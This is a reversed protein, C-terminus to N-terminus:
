QKLTGGTGKVIRCVQAAIERENTVSGTLTEVDVRVSYRWLKPSLYDIELYGPTDAPVIHEQETIERLQVGECASESAFATKFAKRIQDSNPGCGHLAELGRTGPCPGAFNSSNGLKLEPESFVLKARSCGVFALACLFSIASPKM